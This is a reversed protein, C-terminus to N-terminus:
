DRRGTRLRATVTALRQGQFRAAALTDGTPQGTSSPHAVGYPNGFAASVTADLYGPPVIISGWHYMTNYLALVTSENGGHVNAASTFATATKGTIAGTAWLGGTTDIFQKLQAAVNGYRTPSGFAFGDAWLLDDHTAVDIDNTAEVHARWAPNSDIAADPALEPVRRLRVEAGTKEAGEALAEALQHVTGTASYYIVAIKVTV